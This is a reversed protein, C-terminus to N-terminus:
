DEKIYRYTIFGWAFGLIIAGYIGDSYFGGGVMFVFM